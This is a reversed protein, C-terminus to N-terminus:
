AYMPGEYDKPAQKKGGSQKFRRRQTAKVGTFQFDSRILRVFTKDPLPELEVVGRQAFSKLIRDLRERKVKLERELDEVTVPYVEMLYKVVREELSGHLIEVTM